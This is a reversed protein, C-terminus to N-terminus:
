SCSSRGTSALPGRCRTGSRSRVSAWRSAGRLGAFSVGRRRRDSRSSRGSSSWSRPARASSCTRPKERDLLDIARGFATGDLAGRAVAVIRGSALLLAPVYMLPVLADAAKGTLLGTDTSAGAPRQPFVLTFHLLLPPLLAAAMADGWYFVWDLRDLPGNFSFTFAGFFAVCLWFFHLTAPDGPRKLRVSAGVLLTFLGVAALVFYLSTGQPVPALSVDLARREGLRLLTYSLKTGESGRHEFGVVDGPTEIRSGNVALSRRGAPHGRASRRFRGGSRAGDGCARARGM